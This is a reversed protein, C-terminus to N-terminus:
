EAKKLKSDLRLRSDKQMAEWNGFGYLYAGVPLMTM